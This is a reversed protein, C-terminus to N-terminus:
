DPDILYKVEWGVDQVILSVDTVQAAIPIESAGIAEIFGEYVNPATAVSAVGAVTGVIPLLKVGRKAALKALNKGFRKVRKMFGKNETLGGILDSSRKRAKTTNPGEIVRGTKPDIDADVSSFNVSDGTPIQTKGVPSLQDLKGNPSTEFGNLALAEKKLPDSNFNRRLSKNNKTDPSKAAAKDIVEKVEVTRDLPLAIMKAGAEQLNGATKAKKLSITERSPEPSSDMFNNKTRSNTKSDLIQKNGSSSPSGKKGGAKDGNVADREDIVGKIPERRMMGADGKGGPKFVIDDASDGNPDRLSVPSSQVFQYPNLGDVLGAPDASCWRGLWAAYYRAGYYYFGNEEDREKGSYRYRKAAAKINKNKAHYASSGYPHYEEYSIVKAEDDLEVCASGLHNNIQYRIVAKGVEDNNNPDVVVTDDLTKTEVLAVRQKDDMIHLSERELKKTQDNGSYKRYLEFGGIYIREDKRHGNPLHSIKRVRQGGVDYIYLTQEGHHDIGDIDENNVKQRTWTNRYAKTTKRTISPLSMKWGIGFPGNGAGSDYALSPQPGFGSRGPSTAIPM